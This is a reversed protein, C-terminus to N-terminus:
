LRGEEVLHITTLRVGPRNDWTVEVTVQYPMVTYETGTTQEPFAWPKVSSNWQYPPQFEGEEEGAILESGSVLEALKSEALALAYQHHEAFGTNRMASSLVNLVVGLSGAAILFAVLVELLTFGKVRAPYVRCPHKEHLAPKTM